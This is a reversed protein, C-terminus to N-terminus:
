RKNGFLVSNGDPVALDLPSKAHRNGVRVELNMLPHNDQPLEPGVNDGGLIQLLAEFSPECLNRIM